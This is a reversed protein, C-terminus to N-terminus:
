VIIQPEGRRNHSGSLIEYNIKLTGNRFKERIGEVSPTELFTREQGRASFDNLRVDRFGLNKYRFRVFVRIFHIFTFHISYFRVNAHDNRRARQAANNHAPAAARRWRAVAGGVRLRVRRPARGGAEGRGGYAGSRGESGLPLSRDSRAAGATGARAGSAKNGCRSRGRSVM